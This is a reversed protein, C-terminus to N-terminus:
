SHAKFVPECVCSVPSHCHPCCAPTRTEKFNLAWKWQARFQWDEWVRMGGCCSVTPHRLEFANTWRLKLRGSYSIDLWHQYHLQVQSRMASGARGERLSIIWLPGLTYIIQEHTQGRSAVWLSCFPVVRPGGGHQFWGLLLTHSVRSVRRNPAGIFCFLEDWLFKRSIGQLFSLLISVPFHLSHFSRSLVPGPLADQSVYAGYQCIDLSGGTSHNLPCLRRQSLFVAAWCICFCNM